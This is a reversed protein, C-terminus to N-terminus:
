FYSLFASVLPANQCFPPDPIWVGSNLYSLLARITPPPLNVGLASPLGTTLDFEKLVGRGSGDLACFVDLLRCLRRVLAVQEVTLARKREGRGAGTGTGYGSADRSSVAASRPARRQGAAVARDDAQLSRPMQVNAQEILPAAHQRHKRAAPPPERPEFAEGVDAQRLRLSHSSGSSSDDIEPARDAKEHGEVLSRRQRSQHQAGSPRERQGRHRGARFTQGPQLSAAAASGAEAGVAATFERLSSPPPSPQGLKVAVQRLEAGACFERSFVFRAKGSACHFSGLPPLSLWVGATNEGAAVGLALSVEKVVAQVMDKPVGCQRSLSAFSMASSTSAIARPPADPAAPVLGTSRVFDRSMQLAPTRLGGPQGSAGGHLLVFSGLGKLATGRNGAVVAKVCTDVCTFAVIHCLCHALRATEYLTTQSQSVSQSWCSSAV